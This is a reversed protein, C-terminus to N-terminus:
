RVVLDCGILEGLLPLSLPLSSLPATDDVEGDVTIVDDPNPNNFSSYSSASDVIKSSSMTCISAIRLKLYKTPSQKCVCRTQKMNM